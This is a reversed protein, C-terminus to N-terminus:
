SKAAFVDVREELDSRTADQDEVFVLIAQPAGKAVRFRAGDADKMTAKTHKAVPDFPKFGSHILLVPYSYLLITFPSEIPPMNFMKQINRIILM